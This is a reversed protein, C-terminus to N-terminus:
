RGSLGQWGARAEGRRLVLWHVCTRVLHGRAGRGSAALRGDPLGGLCPGSPQRFPVQGIEIGTDVRRFDGAVEGLHVGFADRKLRVVLALEGLLRGLLTAALPEGRRDPTVLRDVIQGPTQGGIGTENVGAVADIGRDGFEVAVNGLPQGIGRHM